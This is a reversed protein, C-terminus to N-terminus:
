RGRLRNYEKACLIVEDRDLKTDLAVDAMSDAAELIPDAKAKKPAPKPDEGTEAKVDAMTIKGEKAAVKNQHEKSLKAVAKAAPGKLRGERVAKEAKPTLEILALRNKVWAKTTRYLNACEDETMQHVNILRQINYADDIPTTANRVRNEEINAIFAQKENLATYSCRLKMPKSRAGKKIGGDAWSLMGKNIASVARWRSFGAALVPKGGTRRISVPQIQGHGGMSEIHLMSEILWTIDPLEHRGNQEAEAVIDEPLFLYESTRTMDEVKFEVAM